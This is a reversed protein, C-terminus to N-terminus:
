AHGHHKGVCVGHREVGRHPCGGGPAAVCPGTDEEDDQRDNRATEHGEFGDHLMAPERSV